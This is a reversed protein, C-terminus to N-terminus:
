HRLRYRYRHRPLAPPPSLRPLPRPRRYPLRNFLTLAGKMDLTDKLQSFEPFVIYHETWAHQWPSGFPPPHCFFFFIVREQLSQRARESVSIIKSQNM